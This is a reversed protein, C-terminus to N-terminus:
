DVLALLTLPFHSIRGTPFAPNEMSPFPPSYGWWGFIQENRGYVQFSEGWINPIQHPTIKGM